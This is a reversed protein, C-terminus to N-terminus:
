QNLTITHEAADASVEFSAKDWKAPGFNGKADNSFAYPETPMGFPNTNMQGDGNVDHFLKIGYTGPALGEFTYSVTDGTVPATDGILYEGSDYGAQDYIAFSIEGQAKEIGAVTMTLNATEASAFPAILAAAAILTAIRKM